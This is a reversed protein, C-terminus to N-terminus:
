LCYIYLYISVAVLVVVVVVDLKVIGYWVMSWSLSYLVRIGSMDFEFEESRLLYISKMLGDM